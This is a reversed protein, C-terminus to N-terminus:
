VRSTISDERRMHLNREESAISPWPLSECDSELLDGDARGLILLVINITDEVRSSPAHLARTGKACIHCLRYREDVKKAAEFIVKSRM